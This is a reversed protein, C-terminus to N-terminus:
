EKLRARLKLLARSYRKSAADPSLDVIAAAEANSLEEYNRMLVLERDLEPLEAIAAQIRDVLEAKMVVQSPTASQLLQGALILSSHDPLRVEQDM